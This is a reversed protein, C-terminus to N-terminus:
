SMLSTYKYYKDFVEIVDDNDLVTVKKKFSGIDQHCSKDVYDPLLNYIKGDDGGHTETSTFDYITKLENETYDGSFPIFVSIRANPIGFNGNAIVRGVIVGYGCDYLKYLNKEGIKLSLIELTDYSQDIPVDIVFPEDSGVNTRIRYSKNDM